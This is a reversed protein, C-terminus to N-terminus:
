LPNAALWNLVEQEHGEPKVKEFVHAIKGDRGIIFTTRVVGMYKRGMMNKEQWVGYSEAVQHDADALLPFNLTFKDSFAQVDGVPDPSIGLVAVKAKKYQNITDRFGCAQKTCGPTDAKPYFYLVVPSKDHFGVLNITQGNSASLNFAPAKQGAQLIQDSM